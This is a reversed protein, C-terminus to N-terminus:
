SLHLMSAVNQNIVNLLDEEKISSVLVYSMDEENQHVFLINNLGNSYPVIQIHATVQSTNSYALLTVSYHNNNVSQIPSKVNPNLAFQFPSVQVIYNTVNSM